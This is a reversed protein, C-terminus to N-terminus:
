LKQFLVTECSIKLRINDDLLTFHHIAQTSSNHENRTCPTEPSPPTNQQNIEHIIEVVSFQYAM